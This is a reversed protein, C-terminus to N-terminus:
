NPVDANQAESVFGQEEPELIFGAERLKRASATVKMVYDDHTPYLKILMDPTFPTTSGFLFCFLSGSASGSSPDGSLTRIPVDVDPSRVGGQTNGLEDKASKGSDDTKLVEGRPPETGDRMWADLSKLAARIVRFQPGNNAGPCQISGQTVMSANFDVIFQDAHSTGAVEWTRLKDTDPQRAPLFALMGTVDTETQFQFV